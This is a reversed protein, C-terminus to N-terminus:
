MKVTFQLGAFIDAGERCLQEVVCVVLYRRRLSRTWRLVCRLHGPYLERAGGCVVIEYIARM